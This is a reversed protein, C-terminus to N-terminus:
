EDDLYKNHEELWEKIEKPIKSNPIKKGKNYIDKMSHINDKGIAGIYQTFKKPIAGVDYITNDSLLITYRDFFRKGGDDYLAKIKLNHKKKMKDSM